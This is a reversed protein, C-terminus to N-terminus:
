DAAKIELVITGLTCDGTISGIVPNSVIIEGTRGTGVCGVASELRIRDTSLVPAVTVGEAAQWTATVVVAANSRNEIYIKATKETWGGASTTTPIDYKLTDPNWTYEVAASNYEFTMDDWSINVSYVPSEDIVDTGKIYTATVEINVSGGISTITQSNSGTTGGGVDGGGLDGGENGGSSVERVYGCDNCNADTENDYVHDAKAEAVACGANACVHWHGDADKNWAGTYDHTKADVVVYDCVTCKVETQCNNDDTDYHAGRSGDLEAGCSCEFWHETESNKRIVYDHKHEVADAIKYGCETCTEPTTETAPGSSTHGTMAEVAICGENACRHAHGEADKVWEGTYDHSKAATIEYGCNCNVATECNNDDTGTHAVRTAEDAVGCACEYWHNTDDKDLVNYNHVHDLKPAIEYGCVTCVEAADETAAGSSIHGGFENKAQCGENSCAYWHGTADKVLVENNFNHATPDIDVPETKKHEANRSCTYTKEGASMCTPDTTVVGDDYDHANEDIGLDETKTHNEDNKCTYTKVGPVTCSPVTTIKGDDWNHDLAEGETEGCTGCVKATTCTADSWNHGAVEGETTGCVSCTKPAVCTADTWTHDENASIVVKKCVSCVVETTCNGDDSTTHGSEVCPSNFVVKDYNYAMLAHDKTAYDENFSGNWMYFANTTIDPNVEMQELSFLMTDPLTTYNYEAGLMGNYYDLLRAKDIEIEWYTYHQGTTIRGSSGIKIEDGDVDERLLTMATIPYTTDKTDNHYFIATYATNDGFTYNAFEGNPYNLVNWKYSGNSRAMGFRSGQSWPYETRTKNLNAVTTKATGTKVYDMQRVVMGVTNNPNEEDFGLRLAYGNLINATGSKDYVGIYIKDATHSFSISMEESRLNDTEPITTLADFSITNSAAVPAKLKAVTSYENVGIEGDQAAQKYGNVTYTKSGDTNPVYDNFVVKDYKYAELAHAKTAHDDGFAGNWIYSNAPTTTDLEMQQLSFLMTDPLTKFDYEANEMGNYYDLLRAKDIEIEWYTYYQGTTIRGSTGVKIENGNVDQRQMTMATIPYTTNKNDNHYLMSSYKTGDGSKYKNYNANYAAESGPSSLINWKYDGNSRAMGLRAGQSWNYETWTKNLNALTTRTSKAYAYDAFRVAIGVTNNTNKEDFGLRLAYGNLKSEEGSKDYVGIYIKEATHSFSVSMEESRLTDTEPITTLADFSITGSAAVPTSLEATVSYEDADINGDQTAKKYGNVTYIKTGDTNTVVSPTTATIGGAFIEVPTLPLIMVMILMLSILRLVKKM